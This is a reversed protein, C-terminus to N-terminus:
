PTAAGTVVYAAAGGGFPLRDAVLLPAALLVLIAATLVLRRRDLRALGYGVLLAFAPASFFVYREAFVPRLPSVAVLVTVPVGLWPVALATVQVASRTHRTARVTALVLLWLLVALLVSSVHVVASAAAGSGHREPVAVTWSLPASLVNRTVVGSLWGVQDAQHGSVLLVPAVVAAAGATAVLQPRVDRRAVALTVLHALAVLLAYVFVIGAVALLLGYGVWWRRGRDDVARLLAYGSWTVVACVLAYSRAQMGYHSTVPLLALVLGAALGTSRGALRTGIATVGGVAVAVAVASVARTAFPSDGLVSTAAHVLAYYGGHVADRRGLRQWLDAWPLAAFRMTAREDRNMAPLWSASLSVALAVVVPLTANGGTCHQPGAM